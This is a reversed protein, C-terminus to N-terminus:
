SYYLLWLKIYMAQPHLMLAYMRCDTLRDAKNACYELEEAFAVSYNDVCDNLFLTAENETALAQITKQLRAKLPFCTLM